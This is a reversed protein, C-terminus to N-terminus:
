FDLLSYHPGAPIGPFSECLFSRFSPRSKIKMYWEKSFPYNMWSIHGLYDICSLQTAASIDAWSFRRGALFHNQECLNEIITMYETLQHLGEKICATDPSGKGVRKKLAKEFFVSFFVDQYFSEEFFRMLRRTHARQEVNEGMLATLSYAEDLYECLPYHHSLIIGSDILLPLDGSPTYKLCEESIAWPREIKEEFEINKEKLGMVIKRSFPCFTMHYFVRM